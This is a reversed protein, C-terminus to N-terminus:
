PCATSGRRATRSRPARPARGCSQAVRWLPLRLPQRRRAPLPLQSAGLRGRPDGLLDHADHHPPDQLVARRRRRRLSAGAPRGARQARLEAAPRRDAQSLDNGRGSLDRWQGVRGAGDSAVGFDARAWLVLGPASAPSLDSALAFTALSVPSPNMGARFARAQVTTTATLTLPSTYLPSSADPDSMDTTYRIEAGPTPTQAHCEVSGTFTGGREASFEPVGATGVFAAYKLTLYDEISKRQCSTLPQTYILLEAIDGIWPLDNGEARRVAPRGDRGATTLVSLVSM